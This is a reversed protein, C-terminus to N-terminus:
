FLVTLVSTNQFLLPVSRQGGWWSYLRVLPNQITHQQLSVFFHWSALVLLHCVVELQWNSMRVRPLSDIQFLMESEDLLSNWWISFFDTPTICAFFYALLWLFVWKSFNLNVKLRLPLGLRCRLDACCVICDRGTNPFSSTFVTEEGASLTLKSKLGKRDKLRFLYCFMEGNGGESENVHQLLDSVVKLFICKNSTSCLCRQQCTVAAM